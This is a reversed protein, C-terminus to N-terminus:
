SAEATAAPRAPSVSHAVLHGAMFLLITGAVLYGGSQFINLMAIPGVVGGIAGATLTGVIRTTSMMMNLAGFIRGRFEDPAEMQLISMVSSSCAAAPIGVVAILVLGIIVPSFFVPYTFLAMDLLAFAITGMWVLHRIAIRSGVAGIVLGGIIGGVAQASMFWGFQLATGHIVQKIWVVFMTAMVGEGLTTLAIIGLMLSIVTNGRIVRFGDLWEHWVRKPKEGDVEVKPEARPIRLFSTLIAGFAFTGADILTVGALGATAAIVGGLAPGVLRAGSNTLSGLSNATVLQDEGVLTPLLAAEAPNFFQAVTSQVFGVLYVMWVMEASHVLLLPLLTVALIVNSFLMVYKRSWRDVYVGAFSSFLLGPISEAVVAISTALPSGTITYVYIPLAIYLLWDGTMSILGTFWVLFFNRNRLVALV